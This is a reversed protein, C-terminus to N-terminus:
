FDDFIATSVVLVTSNSRVFNNDVALINWVACLQRVLARYSLDCFQGAYWYFTMM